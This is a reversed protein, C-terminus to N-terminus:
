GISRQFCYNNHSVEWEKQVAKIATQLIRQSYLINFLIKRKSEDFADLSIDATACTYMVKALVAMEFEANAKKGPRKKATENRTVWRKLQRKSLVEWSKGLMQLRKFANDLGDINVALVAAAMQQSSFMNKSNKATKLIELLPGIAAEVPPLPRRKRKKKGSAPTVITTSNLALLDALRKEAAVARAESAEVLGGAELWQAQIENAARVREAQVEAAARVGEAEVTATARVMVDELEAVLDAVVRTREAAAMAREAAAMAREAVLEAAATVRADELEAAAMAREAVMDAAARGHMAKEAVLDTAARARESVTIAREAELQGRMRVIEDSASNGYDKLHKPNPTGLATFRQIVFEDRDM